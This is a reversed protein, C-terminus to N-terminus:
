PLKKTLKSVEVNYCISDNISTSKIYDMYTKVDDETAAYRVDYINFSLTKTLNNFGFLRTKHTKNTM